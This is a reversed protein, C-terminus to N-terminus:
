PVKKTTDMFARIEPDATLRGGWRRWAITALRAVDSMASGGQYTSFRLQHQSYVVEVGKYGRDEDYYVNGGVTQPSHRLRHQACFKKWADAPVGVTDSKFTINAASSM